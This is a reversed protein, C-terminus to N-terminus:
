HDCINSGTELKNNLYNAVLEEPNGQPAGVIVKINAEQFLNQARMGMGGAIVVNVEREALWKPLLGPAHPPAGVSTTELIKKKECDVDMIQFEDCHGFHMCLKKNAVPLAIKM